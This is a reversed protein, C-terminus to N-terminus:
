AWLSKTDLIVSQVDLKDALERAASQLVPDITGM